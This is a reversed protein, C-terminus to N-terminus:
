APPMDGGMDDGNFAQWVHFDDTASCFYGSGFVRIERKAREWSVGKETDWKPVKSDHEGGGRVRVLASYAVLGSLAGHDPEAGPRLKSLPYGGSSPDVAAGFIRLTIYEVSKGGKEIYDLLELYLELRQALQNPADPNHALLRQSGVTTSKQVIETNMRGLFTNTSGVLEGSHPGISGLYDCREHPTTRQFSDLADGPASGLRNSNPVNRFVHPAM